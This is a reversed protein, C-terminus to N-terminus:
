AKLKHVHIEGGSRVDIECAIEVAKAPKAGAKFAAVAYGGGSGIGHYGREVPMEFGDSSVCWVGDERLALATFGTDMKPMRGKKGSTFWDLWAVADKVNGAVGILANEHRLVKTMPFWEGTDDSCKSDCVMMADKASAFITTV